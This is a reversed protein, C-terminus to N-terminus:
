GAMGSGGDLARLKPRVLKQVQEGKHGPALHSYRRTMELQAHGLLEQVSIIDTGGMVLHSAYSHRLMHFHVHRGFKGREASRTMAKEIQSKSRLDGM